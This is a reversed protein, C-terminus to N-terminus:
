KLLGYSGPQNIVALVYGERAGYASNIPEGSAGSEIPYLVPRQADSEEPDICCHSQMQIQLEDWQGGFTYLRSAGTSEYTLAAELPPLPSDLILLDNIVGSVQWYVQLSGDSSPLTLPPSASQTIQKIDDDSYAAIGIDLPPLCHLVGEEDYPQCFLVGAVEALDDKRQEQLFRIAHDYIEVEGMRDFDDGRDQPEFTVKQRQLAVIEWRTQSPNAPDISGVLYQTAGTQTSSHDDKCLPYESRCYATAKLLTMTETQVPMATLGMDGCLWSGSSIQKEASLTRGPGGGLVLLHGETDSTGLDLSCRREHDVLWVHADAVLTGQVEKLVVEFPPYSVPPQNCTIQIIPISSLAEPWATKGPGGLAKVPAVVQWDPQHDFQHVISDWASRAKSYNETFLWQITGECSDTWLGDVDRASLESTEYQWNMASAGIGEDTDKPFDEICSSFKSQQDEPVYEDYLGLAYHGLEHVITRFGDLESWRAGNRSTLQRSWFPGLQVQYNEPQLETAMGGISAHPYETNRALVQIDASSWSERNDVIRVQGFAIQGDTLDWLYTSANRMAEDFDKLYEQTADWEISVLLNLLILPRQRSLTLTYAHGSNVSATAPQGKEDWTLSTLYVQHRWGPTGEAQPMSLMLVPDVWKHEPRSTAILERPQLAIVSGPARPSATLRGSVDTATRGSVVDVLPEGDAYLVANTVPKQDLIVTFTYVPADMPPPLPPPQSACGTLALGLTALLMTAVVLPVSISKFRSAQRHVIM